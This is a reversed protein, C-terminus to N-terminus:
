KYFSYKNNTSHFTRGDSNKKREASYGNRALATGEPRGSYKIERVRKPRVTLFQWSDRTIKIIEVIELSRTTVPDIAITATSHPQEAVFVVMFKTAPASDFSPFEVTKEPSSSGSSTPSASGKAM